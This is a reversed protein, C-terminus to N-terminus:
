GINELVFLKQSKYYSVATKRTSSGVVKGEIDFDRELGLLDVEVLQGKSAAVIKGDSPRVVYSYGSVTTPLDLYLRVIPEQPNTEELLRGTEYAQVIGLAVQNALNTLRNNVDDELLETQINTFTLVVLVFFVLAAASLIIHEIIPSVARM